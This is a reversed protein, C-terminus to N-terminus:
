TADATCIGTFLNIELSYFGDDIFWEDDFDDDNLIEFARHQLM